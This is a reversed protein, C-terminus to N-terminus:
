ESFSGHTSATRHYLWKSVALGFEDALCLGTASAAHSVSTDCFMSFCFDFSTKLGEM